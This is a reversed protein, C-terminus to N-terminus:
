TVGLVLPAALGFMILRNQSSADQDTVPLWARAGERKILRQLLREPRIVKKIKINKRM